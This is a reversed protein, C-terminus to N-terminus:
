YPSKKDHLKNIYNVIKAQNNPLIESIEIGINILGGKAAIRKTYGIFSLWPKEKLCLFVKLITNKRLFGSFIRDKITIGVGSLSIDEIKINLSMDDVANLKNKIISENIIKAISIFYDVDNNSLLRKSRTNSIRLVGIVRGLIVIPVYLLSFISNKKYYNGLDLIVNKIDAVHSVSLFEIYDRLRFFNSNRKLNAQSKYKLEFLDNLLLPQKFEQLFSLINQDPLKDISTFIKFDDCIHKNEEFILKVIKPFDPKDHSLEHYISKMVGSLGQIDHGARIEKDYSIVKLNCVLFDDNVPYRRYQRKSRIYIQKPIELVLEKNDKDVHMPRTDFYHYKNLYYFSLRLVDHLNIINVDSIFTFQDHLVDEIKGRYEVLFNRLNFVTNIKQLLKFISNIKRKDDIIQIPLKKDM